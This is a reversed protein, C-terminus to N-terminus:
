STLGLRHAVAAAETRTRVDLKALIRSVHVSATKEAMYLAQGIERNTAGAALMELVQRERPTLGFPDGDAPASEAADTRLRARAIFGDIESALWTAGLGQADGLAEHAAEAAARRDGGALRAEAERWRARAAEYPRGVARWASGAQAWLAPDDDGAARAALARGTALNASEIPRNEGATAELRALLMEAASVALRAADAEGLDRARVAADAEVALGVVSVMSIRAMDESCFEIRDLGEDVAARAATLDGARRELEAVLAAQAGIFQPERSASVIPAAADLLERARDHEGRGLALEVRRHADNVFTDHQLRRGHDPLLAATTDWDGLQFAIEAKVLALWRSFHGHEAAMALGEEAAALADEGRGRWMLVDALNVHIQVATVPMDHELALAIARRLSPIGEPDGIWALSVGLADLARIEPMVAGAARAVEIARRAQEITERHRSALMLQKARTALLLARQETPRDTPVLALAREQTEYAEDQRGLKWQQGALRDLVEAMRLPERQEDIEAAAARLLTEAREPDGETHHNWAASRLLDVRDTGALEAADPVRDWLELAREFLAAAEGYARAAEAAEGARVSAVLARPQDGGASYHHAIASANHAGPATHSELAGALALHLDAREGPLLDDAIVEGLLAHRFGYRGDNDVRVIQAAVADRLADRLVTPELQTAEAVVAHEVRGGVALARLVDQTPAALREIRVMLAERLTPPLAGRGDLGAALLEEAYLANGESRAWLREILDAEPEGGLIDALQEALEERTFPALSVRRAGRELEALVPRLPHRRHLEDPRYTAVVLVRESVLSAALYTLFARTSRDAWHLDEITLLLGSDDALRDLLSLLAEFLAARAGSAEESFGRPAADRALGPLMAELAQRAADPLAGLVPDSSRALPRLAAAIPAYALESDGLDVCEGSLVRIGDARARRELECVLRTKGVGSEGAVFALAPRGDLADSLATELEALEAARGIFRSSSVRTAMGVHDVM